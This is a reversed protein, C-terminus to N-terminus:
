DKHMELYKDCADIITAFGFSVIVLLASVVVIYVATLCSFPANAAIIIAIFAVMFACM